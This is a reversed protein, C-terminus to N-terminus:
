HSFSICLWPPLSKSFLRTKLRSHYLFHFLLQIFQHHILPYSAHSFCPPSFYSVLVMGINISCIATSLEFSNVYRTFFRIIGALQRIQLVQLDDVTRSGNPSRHFTLGDSAAGSGGPSPGHQAQLAARDRRCQDKLALMARRCRDVMAAISQLIQFELVERICTVLVFSAVFVIIQDQLTLHQSIWRPLASYFM